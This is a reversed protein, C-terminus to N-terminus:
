VPKHASLWISKLRMGNVLLTKPKIHYAKVVFFLYVFRDYM